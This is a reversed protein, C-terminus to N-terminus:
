VPAFAWATSLATVVGSSCTILPTSPMVYMWDELVFLPKEVIL